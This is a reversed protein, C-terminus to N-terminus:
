NLYGIAQAGIAYGATKPATKGPIAPCPILTMGLKKVADQDFGSATTVIDFLICDRRLTSLQTEDLAPAPITNIVFDYDASRELTDPVLDYADVRCGLAHLRRAIASGCRGFGLVLAHSGQLSFPTNLILYALLGEATLEANALLFERCSMYNLIPVHYAACADRIEPLLEGNRYFHVPGILLDCGELYSPNWDPHQSVLMGEQLLYESLYKQRADEGIICIRFKQM